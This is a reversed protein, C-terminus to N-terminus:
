ALAARVATKLAPLLQDAFWPNRSLWVNNRPSPHPLPIIAPGFERWARVTETLPLRTAGLHWRQAYQGIVLTLRLQGLCQLLQERWAPACEPRPPLDGGNGRGPYCLAMPVIAIRSADWFTERDLDMWGRLREGSADDFPIGSAHAVSGPAQSAILIRARPDLQLIPRAGLPLSGECLRCKRASALLAAANLTM